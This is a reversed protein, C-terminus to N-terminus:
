HNIVRFQLFEDVARGGIMGFGSAAVMEFPSTADTVEHRNVSVSQADVREAVKAARDIDTGWVSASLAHPPEGIWGLVRDLDDFGVVTFVPGAAATEVAAGPVGADRIERLLTPELFHGPLDTGRGGGHVLTSGAAVSRALFDEVVRLQRASHLPGISTEPSSGDGVTLMRMNESLAECFADVMETPVYARGPGGLTQGANLFASGALATATADVHADPLVVAAGGGGTTTAVPTLFRAAKSIIKRAGGRSGVYSVRGIGPHGVLSSGTDDYGVSTGLVGDPLVAELVDVVRTVSLAVTPPTEVIVTNGAVLAPAIKAVMRLIPLDWPILVAVVGVPRYEIVATRNRGACVPADDDWDIRATDALFKAAARIEGASEDLPKGHEMTLLPAVADAVAFLERSCIALLKQRADRDGRWTAFARQARSVLGDIQRATAIQVSGISELTAPNVCVRAQPGPCVRAQTLITSVRGTERQYAVRGFRDGDERPAPFRTTDRNNM